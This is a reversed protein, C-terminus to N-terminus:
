ARTTPTPQPLGPEDGRRLAAVEASTEINVLSLGDLEPLCARLHAETNSECVVARAALDEVQHRLMRGRLNTNLPAPVAGLWCTGFFAWLFEVRNSCLIAVRDGRRVGVASLLASFQGAQMLLEGATHEGADTFRVVPLDGRLRQALYLSGLLTRGTAEEDMCIKETPSM